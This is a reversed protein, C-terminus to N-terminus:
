EGCRQRFDEYGFRRLLSCTGDTGRWYIAPLNVGNFMHAKVLTYAGANEIVVRAGIELPVPFAYEGFVDGALCTAGALVYRHGGKQVTGAVDPEFQFEFAEPMHNVTTDLVAIEAGGSQFLDAVSAILRVSRRIISAGPEILVKLDYRSQLLGVARIFRRIDTGKRFLYGGGLNIWELKQLLPGLTADLARVTTLLDGFDESDANTHILLGTMGILRGPTESAARALEHLPVGLKSHRRCPDYREDRVMSLEPNVRLGLRARRPSSGRFRDWQSLSNLSIMDGVACLDAVEQDSFCPATVHILGTDGLIERALRAEFLSSAHLGQTFRTLRMLARPVACAKMAFLLDAGAAESAKRALDADAILTAEDFLYAPTEIRATDKPGSPVLVEELM